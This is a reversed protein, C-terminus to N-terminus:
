DHTARYADFQPRLEMADMWAELEAVRAKRKTLTVQLQQIKEGKHDSEQQLRKVADLYKDREAEAAALRVLLADVQSEVQEALQERFQRERETM